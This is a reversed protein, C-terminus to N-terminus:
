LCWSNVREDRAMRGPALRLLIPCRIEVHKKKPPIVIVWFYPSGFPGGVKPEDHHRNWNIKLNGVGTPSDDWPFFTTHWRGIDASFNHCCFFLFASSGVGFTSVDTVWSRRPIYRYLLINSSPPETILEFGQLFPKQKTSTRLFFSSLLAVCKELIM